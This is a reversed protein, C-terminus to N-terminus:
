AVGPATKLTSQAVRSPMVTPMIGPRVAVSPMARMVVSVKLIAGPSAMRMRIQMYTPAM